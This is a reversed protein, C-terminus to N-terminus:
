SRLKRPGVKKTPSDATALDPYKKEIALLEDFWADWTEDATTQWGLYYERNARRIERRLWGARERARDKDTM